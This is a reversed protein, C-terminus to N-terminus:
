TAIEGICLDWVCYYLHVPMNAQVTALQYYYYYYHSLWTCSIVNRIELNQGLNRQVNYEVQHMIIINMFVYM